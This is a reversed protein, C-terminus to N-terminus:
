QDAASKRRPSTVSLTGMDGTPATPPSASGSKSRLLMFAIFATAVLALVGRHRRDAFRGASQTELIQRLTGGPSDRPTSDFSM